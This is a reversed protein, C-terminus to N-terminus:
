KVPAYFVEIIMQKLDADNVHFEESNEGMVSEGTMGRMSNLSFKYDLAMSALYTMEEISISSVMNKKVDDYLSLPFTINGKTKEKLKQVFATMFEKQREIRRLNTGLEQTEAARHRVYYLAEEGQLTVKSGVNWEPMYVAVDEDVTVEVGGVADNLNAIALIDLAVYGHIPIGYFLESVAQEMLECSKERGDGYAYQLTIQGREKGMYVGATDYIEIDTISDRNVNIIQIEETTPNMVALILADAQGAKGPIKIQSIGSHSDIGMFLFTVLEQNYEYVEGDVLIQGEELEHPGTEDESMEKLLVTMGNETMTEGHRNLSKKGLTPLIMYGLFMLVVLCLIIGGGTLWTLYKKKATRNKKKGKNKKEM